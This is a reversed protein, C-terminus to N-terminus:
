ASQIWTPRADLRVGPAADSIRNLEEDFEKLKSRVATLEQDPVPKDLEGITFYAFDDLKLRLRSYALAAIRHDRAVGSPNLAANSAAFIATAISTAIAAQDNNSVVSLGSLAALVATIWTLPTAIVRWRAAHKDHESSSNQAFGAREYLRHSVGSWTLGRWALEPEGYARTEYTDSVPDYVVKTSSTAVQPEAVAATTVADPIRALVEDSGETEAPRPEPPSADVQSVRRVPELAAPGPQAGQRADAAADETTVSSKNRRNRKISAVQQEDSHSTDAAHAVM